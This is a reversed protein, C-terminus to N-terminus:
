YYILLYIIDTMLIILVLFLLCLMGGDILIINLVKHQLYTLMYTVREALSSGYVKVM